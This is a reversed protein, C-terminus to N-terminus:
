FFKKKVFKGIKNIAEKSEPLGFDHFVHLTDDWLQLTIDVGAAKAREVFRTSDEFLMESTSAQILIPPLDTLDANVPSIRIPDVGALYSEAWWFIGLDALVPDTPANKFYSNSALALDTAPSLCVAGAPLTIGNNRLEILTSLAFYGGASDGAVIINQPKFGCSLLWNFSTVCDDLGAPFPHEPALRYDISLVRMETAKGLKITLLRRFNPSGMIYGGGHFYLLVRDKKADPVTQWEASVGGVDVQECKVEKSIHSHKQTYDAFYEVYFRHFKAIFLKENSSLYDKMDSGKFFSANGVMVKRWLSPFDVEQNEKIKLFEKYAEVRVKGIDEMINLIDPRIKTKDLIVM